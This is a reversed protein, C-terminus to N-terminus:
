RRPRRRRASRRFLDPRLRAAAMLLAPILITLVLDKAGEGYQRGPDPWQEVWLDVTENWLIIAVCWLFPIWSTIPRRVLLAAVLWVLLGAIIHLADHDVSLSYELFLKGQHWTAMADAIKM